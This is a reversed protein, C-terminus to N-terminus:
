REYRRVEEEGAPLRALLAAISAGELPHIVDAALETLPALVFRRRALEPHPVVLDPEAVVRDGYLLVDVDIVRPGNAVARVRGMAREVALAAALLERPTLTTVVRAAANLFWGQPPGGVPSTEYLSSVAISTVGDARGLRDVAEGIRAARDGLNSGLGLHATVSHM